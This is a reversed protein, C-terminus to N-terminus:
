GFFVRDFNITFHSKLFHPDFVLLCISLKYKIYFWDKVTWM